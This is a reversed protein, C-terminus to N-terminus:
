AGTVPGQVADWGLPHDATRDPQDILIVAVQDRGGCGSNRSSPGTFGTRMQPRIPLRGIKAAPLEFPSM